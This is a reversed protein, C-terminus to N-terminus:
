SSGFSNNKLFAKKVTESVESRDKVDISLDYVSFETMIEHIFTQWKFKQDPKYLIFDLDESFRPLDYVIRM